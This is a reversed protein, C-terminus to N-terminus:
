ENGGVLADKLTELRYTKLKEPQRYFYEELTPMISYEWIMQLRPMDLDHRMFHSHGLHLHWEIGDRELQRNTIDLLEAVWSLELNDTVEFFDRLIDPNPRMPVFHFRRRLAHDVLAISRDATNMTGILFLNTPIAFQEGSYPLTVTEQRYELLYLLEGLIRPLEGRNIEDLILVFRRKPHNRAQDCVRRFLGKKVPYSLEHCGDSGQVSQPRIGEVFEEYAYSPHFQIVQVTGGLTTSADVWYKAFQSAVWTKGTGPPGYLILQRKDRLLAEVQDWFTSNLYTEQILHERTYREQETDEDEKQEDIDALELPDDTTAFRFIPYLLQFLESVEEAFKPQFLVSNDTSYRREIDILDYEALQQLGDQDTVTITPKQSSGHREAISLRIDEPLTKLLQLFVHPAQALNHRFRALQETGRAGAGCFGVNVHTPHVNVFLQADTQKRHGQRYFAGWLYTHYPGHEDEFRKNIAAMVKGSKVGTELLPDLANITPAVARFLQRLPERLVRQYRLKNEHMWESSNNEALEQLFQFTDEDFGPFIVTDSAVQTTQDLRAINWLIVDLEQPLLGYRERFEIIRKNYQRYGKATRMKGSEFGTTIRLGDSMIPLWINYQKPNRVYLIATPLSVGAGSVDLQSWFDDLLTDVEDDDVQWLREVWSNFQDLTDLMLKVQQGYLAPMFRDYRPKSDWLDTSMDRLLTKLDSEDFQGINNGLLARAAAEGEERAKIRELPLQERQWRIIQSEWVDIQKQQNAWYIFLDTFMLDVSSGTVESIARRLDALHRGVVMYQEGEDGKKGWPLEAKWDIAQAEFFNRIQKNWLWYKDPFRLALIESLYAPGFGPLAAKLENFDDATLGVEARQVLELLVNRINPLREDDVGFLNRWLRQRGRVGYWADTDQLFEQLEERTLAPIRDPQLLRDAGEERRQHDELQEKIIPDSSQSEIFRNILSQLSVTDLKV